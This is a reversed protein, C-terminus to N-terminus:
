DAGPANYWADRTVNKQVVFQKQCFVRTRRNLTDVFDEEGEVYSSNPAAVWRSAWVAMFHPSVPLTVETATHALDAEPYTVPNFIAVAADSTIFGPETRAAVIRLPIHGLAPGAAFTAPLITRQLPRAALERLDALTIKKDGTASTLSIPMRDRESPPVTGDRSALDDAIEHMRGWLAQHIKRQKPTRAFGAIAFACLTACDRAVLPRGQVITEDRVRLFEDLLRQLSQELYMPDDDSGTYLHPERFLKKLSRSKGNRSQADFVWVFPDYSAPCEPDCWAQLYARDAWHQYM